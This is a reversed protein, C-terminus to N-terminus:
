RLEQIARFANAIPAFPSLRYSIRKVHNPCGHKRISLSHENFYILCKNVFFIVVELLFSEIRDKVLGM